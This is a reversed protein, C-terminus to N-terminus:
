SVLQVDLETSDISLEFITADYSARWKAFEKSSSSAPSMRVFSATQGESNALSLEVSSLRPRRTVANLTVQPLIAIRDFTVERQGVVKGTPGLQRDYLTVERPLGVFAYEHAQAETATINVGAADVLKAPLYRSDTSAAALQKLRNVQVSNPAVAGPLVPYAGMMNVGAYEYLACYNHLYARLDFTRGPVSGLSMENDGKGGQYCIARGAHNMGFLHGTEHAVVHEIQTEKARVNQPEPKIVGTFIDARRGPTAALGLAKNDCAPLPSIAVIADAQTDLEPMYTEAISSAMHLPKTTDVCNARGNIAAFTWQASESAARVSTTTHVIDATGRPLERDIAKAAIHALEPSVGFNVLVIRAGQQLQHCKTAATQWQEPELPGSNEWGCPNKLPNPDLDPTYVLSPNNPAPQYEAATCNSLALSTAMMVATM